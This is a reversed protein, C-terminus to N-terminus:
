RKIQRANQASATHESPMRYLDSLDSNSPKTQIGFPQLCAADLSTPSKQASTLGNGNLMNAYRERIKEDSERGKKTETFFKRIAIAAVAIGGLFLFVFGINDTIYTTIFGLKPVSSKVVGIINAAYVIDPDPMPNEIGKTHFGRTGNDEDISVIRHTIIANDSRIYTIDDGVKISNVDAGKTIVLSGRPIESQMSSSLVSFGSYGFLKFGGNSKSSFILTAILIFVLAAYFLIDLLYRILTKKKGISAEKTPLAVFTNPMYSSAFPQKANARQEELFERNIQELTKIM